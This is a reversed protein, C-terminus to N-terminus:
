QRLLDRRRTPLLAARTRHEVSQAAARWSWARRVCRRLVAQFARHREIRGDRSQVYATEGTRSNTVRRHGTVRVAAPWFAGSTPANREITRSCTVQIL